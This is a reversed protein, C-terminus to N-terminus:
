LITVIHGLTYVIRYSTLLERPECREETVRALREKHFRRIIMRPHKTTEDITQSTKSAGVRIIGIRWMKVIGSNTAIAIKKNSAKNHGLDM